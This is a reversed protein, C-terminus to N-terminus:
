RQTRTTVGAAAGLEHAPKRVAGGGGSAAATSVAAPRNSVDKLVGRLPVGGAAASAGSSGQKGSARLQQNNQALQERTLPLVALNENESPPEVVLEANMEASFNSGGEIAGTAYYQAYNRSNAGAGGASSNGTSILRQPRVQSGFPSLTNGSVWPSRIHCNGVGGNTTGSIMSSPTPPVSSCASSEDDAAEWIANCKVDDLILRRTMPSGFKAIDTPVCLVGGGAESLPTDSGGYGGCADKGYQCRDRDAGAAALCKGEETDLAGNFDHLISSPVPSFIEPATNMLAIPPKPARVAANLATNQATKTGTSIISSDALSNNGGSSLIVSGVSDCEHQLYQQQQRSARSSQQQKSSGKTQPAQTQAQAQQSQQQHQQLAAATFLSSQLTAAASSTAAPANSSRKREPHPAAALSGSSLSSSSTSSIPQVPASLTTAPASVPAAAAASSPATIASGSVVPITLAPVSDASTVAAVALGPHRSHPQPKSSFAEQHQLAAGSPRSKPVYDRLPAAPMSPGSPATATASASESHVEKKNKTQEQPPQFCVKGPGRAAKARLIMSREQEIDLLSSNSSTNLTGNTGNMIQDSTLNQADILVSEDLTSINISNNYKTADFPTNSVLTPAGRKLLRQERQHPDENNRSTHTVYCDNCVRSGVPSEEELVDFNLNKDGCARCIVYGCSRCHHRWTILGFNANCRMCSQVSNDLVWGVTYNPKNLISVRVVAQTGGFLELQDIKYEVDKFKGSKRVNKKSEHKLRVLISSVSMQLFNCVKRPYFKKKSLSNCLINQKECLCKPQVLL